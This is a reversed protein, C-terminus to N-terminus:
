TFCVIKKKVSNSLRLFVFIFLVLTSTVTPIEREQSLRYQINSELIKESRPVVFDSRKRPQAMEPQQQWPKVPQQVVDPQQQWPRVPKQTMEPQQQWPKM